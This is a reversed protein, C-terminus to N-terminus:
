PATRKLSQTILMSCFPEAEAGCSSQSAFRTNKAPFTVTRECVLAFATIQYAKEPAANVTSSFAESSRDAGEVYIHYVSQPADGAILNAFFEFVTIEM